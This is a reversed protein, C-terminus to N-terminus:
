VDRQVRRAAERIYVLGLAQRDADTMAARTDRLQHLRVEAGKRKKLAQTFEGMAEFPFRVDLTWTKVIGGRLKPKSRLLCLENM